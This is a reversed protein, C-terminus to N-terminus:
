ISQYDASFASSLTSFAHSQNQEPKSKGLYPVVVVAFTVLALLMKVYQNGWDVGYALYIHIASAIFIGADYSTKHTLWSPKLSAFLKSSNLFWFANVLLCTTAYSHSLVWCQTLSQLSPSRIAKIGSVLFYSTYLLYGPVTFKKTGYSKFSMAYTFPVIIACMAGVIRALYLAVSDNLNTLFLLMGILGTSLFGIMGLRHGSYRTKGYYKARAQNPKTYIPLILADSILCFIVGAALVSPPSSPLPSSLSLM